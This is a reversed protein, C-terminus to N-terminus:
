RGFDIGYIIGVDRNGSPRRLLLQRAIRLPLRRVLRFSCEVRRGIPFFRRPRGCRVRGLAGRLRAALIGCQPFLVLARRDGIELVPEHLQPIQVDVLGGVIEAGARLRGDDEELPLMLELLVADRAVLGQGQEIPIGGLM